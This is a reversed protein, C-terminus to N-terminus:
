KGIIVDAQRKIDKEVKAKNTNNHVLISKVFCKNELKGNKVYVKVYGIEKLKFLVSDYTVVKFYRVEGSGAKKVEEEDGGSLEYAIDRAVKPTTILEINYEVDRKPVPYLTDKYHIEHGNFTVRLRSSKNMKEFEPRLELVELAAEAKKRDEIGAIPIKKSKRAKKETKIEGILDIEDLMADLSEADIESYDENEDLVDEDDTEISGGLLMKRIREAEAVTNDEIEITNNDSM